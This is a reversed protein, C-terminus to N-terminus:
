SLCNVFLSVCKVTQKQSKCLGKPKLALGILTLEWFCPKWPFVLDETRKLPLRPPRSPPGPNCSNARDRGETVSSTSSSAEQPKLAQFNVPPVERQFSASSLLRVRPELRARGCIGGLGWANPCTTGMKPKLKRMELFLPVPNSSVLAWGARLMPNWPELAPFSGWIAPPYLLLISM